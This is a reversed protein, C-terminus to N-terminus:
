EVLIMQRLKEYNKAVEKSTCWRDFLDEKTCAFETFTQKENKRCKRFNQRYAEPVLEYAKLVVQKVHDYQASQEVSLASYVERAKGTLVSQLLVMWVEKPWALSTAVKEFHLFFKDVEKEQFQPVFRIHKSVDFTTPIEPSRVPTVTKELEKMKLQVSLEKERIELERLKLQSERERERDQLELHKLELVRDDVTPSPLDDITEEPVLEEDVLFQMVMKCLEDKRTTSTSTLKFHSAIQQLHSKKLTRVVQLSPENIFTDLNFDASM